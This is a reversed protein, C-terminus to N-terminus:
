DHTVTTPIGSGQYLEKNAISAPNNAIQGTSALLELGTLNSVSYVNDMIHKKVANAEVFATTTDIPIKFVIVTILDPTSLNYIHSKM